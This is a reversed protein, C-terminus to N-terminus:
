CEEDEDSENQLEEFMEQMEEFTANELFIGDYTTVDYRIGDDTEVERIAYYDTGNYFRRAKESMRRAALEGNTIETSTYKKM